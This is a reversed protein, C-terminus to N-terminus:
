VLSLTNQLNNEDCLGLKLIWWWLCMKFCLILQSLILVLSWIVSILHRNPKGFGVNTNIQDKHYLRIKAMKCPLKDTIFFSFSTWGSGSLHLDSSSPPLKTYNDLILTFYLWKRCLKVYVLLKRTKQRYINNNLLCNKSIRRALSCVNFKRPYMRWSTDFYGSYECHYETSAVLTFIDWDKRIRRDFESTLYEYWGYIKGLTSKM